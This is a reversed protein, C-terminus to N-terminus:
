IKKQKECKVSEKIKKNMYQLQKGIGLGKLPEEYDKFLSKIYKRYNVGALFIAKEEFNINKEQMQKYVKYAWNKKQKESMNNLTKDYPAIVTDPTLLGYKASLIYINGNYTEAFEYSKKFFDSIYINKAKEPYNLKKKVCGIFINM